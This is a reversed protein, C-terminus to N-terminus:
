NFSVVTKNNASVKVGDLVKMLTLIEEGSCMPTRKENISNCFEEMQLTFNTKSQRGEMLLEGKFWLEMEAFGVIEGVHEEGGVYKMSGNPGILSVQHVEPCCSASLIVTAISNDKFRMLVSVQDEGEWRTDPNSYTEAFLHTPAEGMTWLVYDISHSGCLPIVLGGTLEASDWWPPSWEPKLCDAWMYNINLPKGLEPIRRRAEFLAEYYRRSQAVMVTVNHKKCADVIQKSEDFNLAFPKEILMHKGAKAAELAVPLHQFHPLGIVVADIEDDKFAEATSNYQKKSGYKEAARKLRDEDKDVVAVLTMFDSLQNIAHSHCAAVRGCGIVAVGLKKM